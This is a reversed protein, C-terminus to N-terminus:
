FLAKRYRIGWVLMLLIFLAFGLHLMGIYANADALFLISSVIRLVIVVQVIGFLYVAIRDATVMQGSHGLLVRTGFGVFLTFVFGLLLIHIGLKLTYLGSLSELGTVFLGIPLWLFGITLIRLIAPSKKYIDLTWLFYAIGVSVIFSAASTLASSEGGLAICWSGIVFFPVVWGPKDYHSRFYGAHFFPIMRQAVTFTIPLVSVWIGAWALSFSIFAALVLVLGSIFVLSVLWLSDSENPYRGVRITQYYVFGAIMLAIGSLLQGASSLGVFWVILGAQYLLWFLRFLKGPIEISQTYRPIVTSLFGLFANMFVGYLMGTGHIVSFDLALGIWSAMSLAMLIIAWFISSGFFLRHPQSSLRQWTTKPAQTTSFHM